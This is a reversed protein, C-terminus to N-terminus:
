ENRSTRHLPKYDIAGSANVDFYFPISIILSGGVTNTIDQWSFEGGRSKDIGEKILAAVFVIATSEIISRIKLEKEEKANCEEITSELGTPINTELSKKNWAYLSYVSLLGIGSGAAFHAGKDAGYWADAM